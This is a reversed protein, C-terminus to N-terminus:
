MIPQAVPHWAERPRVMDGHMSPSALWRLARPEDDRGLQLASMQGAATKVALLVAWPDTAVSEVGLADLPSLASPVLRGTDEFSESM